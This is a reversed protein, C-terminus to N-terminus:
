GFCIIELATEVGQRIESKAAPDVIVLLPVAADIIKMCAQGCASVLPYDLLGARGPETGIYRCYYEFVNEPEGCEDDTGHQQGCLACTPTNGIRTRGGDDEPANSALWNEIVGRCQETFLISVMPDLDGTKIQPNAKAVVDWFALQADHTVNEINTM